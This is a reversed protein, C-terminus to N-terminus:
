RLTVWRRERHSQLAADVVEQARVGDAFSPSPKVGDRIALAFGRAGIPETAFIDIFNARDSRGFYSDPVELVRTKEEGAGLWHISVKAHEGTFVHELELAAKEAEIRLVHRVLRDTNHSVNTVDVVGQAGSAFRLTLHAHDNGTAGEHGAIGERSWATGLDASVSEVAGFMWNGLDIMHSGLDGVVGNARRPDMRWQYNRDLAFSTIFGFQTRYIRGFAGEDILSKVFQFHPLWRWTFLIMHPVGKAEAADLLRRADAASNALPKECLVPVGADIAALAMPLHEDDPTAIVVGDLAKDAILARYDTYTRAIGYQAAREQLRVSDRGCIAAVEVLPDGKLKDLYIFDTWWSTGIVGLKVKGAV